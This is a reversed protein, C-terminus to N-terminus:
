GCMRMSVSTCMRLTTKMFMAFSGCRLCIPLTFLNPSNDLTKVGAAATVNQEVIVGTIPAVLDVVGTPHNMDSGLVKLREKTNDVDVMASDEASQAIEVDKKAIAGKESLLKARELQTRALQEVVVAKRYDSFASSIDASQVKMLLQGKKVDDGLRADIEVVRGSALSVVPVTRSVDPQVVGTVSLESAAARKVATALPFQEPHDV